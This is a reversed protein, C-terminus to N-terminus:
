RFISQNGSSLPFIFVIAVALAGAAMPGYLWPVTTSVPAPASRNAEPWIGSSGCVPLM